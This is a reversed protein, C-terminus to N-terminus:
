LSILIFQSIHFMEISVVCICQLCTKAQRGFDFQWLQCVVQAMTLSSATMDNEVTDGVMSSLHLKLQRGRLESHLVMMAHVCKCHTSHPSLHSRINQLTFLQIFRKGVHTPTEGPTLNEAMPQNPLVADVLLHYTLDNVFQKIPFRM